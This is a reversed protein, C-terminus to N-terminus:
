AGHFDERDLPFRVKEFGPVFQIPISDEFRVSLPVARAGRVLFDLEERNTHTIVKGNWTLIQGSRDGKLAYVM